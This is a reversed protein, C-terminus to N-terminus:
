SWLACLGGAALAVGYPVGRRASLAHLVCKGALSRGNKMYLAAYRDCLWGLIGILAGTWAVVAIVPLMKLPGAWFLVAAGLKVDGGGMCRVAFLLLLVLFGVVGVMLHLGAQAWSLGHLWAWPLFFAAYTLVLVNPLRRQRLDTRALLLLLSLACGALVAAIM